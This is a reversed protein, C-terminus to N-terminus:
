PPPLRCTPNCAPLAVLPPQPAPLPLRRRRNSRRMRAPKRRASLRSLTAPRRCDNGVQCSGPKPPRLLPGLLCLLLVLPLTPTVRSGLLYLLLYYILNLSPLGLM